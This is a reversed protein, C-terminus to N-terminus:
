SLLFFRLHKLDEHDDLGYFQKGLAQLVQTEANLADIMEQHTEVLLWRWGEYTLRTSGVVLHIAIYQPTVSYDQSKKWIAWNYLTEIAEKIESIKKCKINLVTHVLMQSILNNFGQIGLNIPITSM